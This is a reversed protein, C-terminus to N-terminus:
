SLAQQIESSHAMLYEGITSFVEVATPSQFQDVPISLACVPQREDTPLEGVIRVHHYLPGTTISIRYWAM